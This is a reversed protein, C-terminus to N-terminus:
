VNCILVAVLSSSVSMIENKKIETEPAKVTNFSDDEGNECKKKKAKEYKKPEFDFEVYKPTPGLDKKRNPKNNADNKNPRYDNPNSPRTRRQYRSIRDHSV